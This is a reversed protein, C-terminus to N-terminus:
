AHYWECATPIFNSFVINHLTYYYEMNIWICSSDIRLCGGFYFMEAFSFHIYVFRGAGASIKPEIGVPSISIRRNHTDHTILYLDRRRASWEDLPTWQTHDLFMLFLREMYIYSMLLRLTLSKVRIRSIHLFHHAGLLALLYCIPNLETNVRNFM